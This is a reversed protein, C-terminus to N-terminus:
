YLSNFWWEAGISFFQHISQERRRDELPFMQRGSSNLYTVAYIVRIQPRSYTGVGNPSITPIIAVTYAEPM